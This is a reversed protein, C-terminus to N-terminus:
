ITELWLLTSFPFARSVLGYLHRLVFTEVGYIRRQYVGGYVDGFLKGEVVLVEEMMMLPGVM